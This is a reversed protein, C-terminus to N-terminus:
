KLPITKYLYRWQPHSSHAKDQPTLMVINGSRINIKFISTPREPLRNGCFVISKGDPSYSPYSIPIINRMDQMFGTYDEDKQPSYIVRIERDTLDMECIERKDNIFVMKTGDFNFEPFSGITLFQIDKFESDLIYIENSKDHKVSLLLSQTTGLSFEALSIGPQDFIGALRKCNPEFADENGRYFELNFDCILTGEPKNIGFFVHADDIVGIGAVQDIRGDFVDNSIPIYHVGGISYTLNDPITIEKLFTKNTLEILGIELSQDDPEIDPFAVYQGNNSWALDQIHGDALIEYDNGEPTMVFIKNMEDYMYKRTYVIYEKPAPTCAALILLLLIYLHKKM